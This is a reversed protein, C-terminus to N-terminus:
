CEVSNPFVKWCDTLYHYTNYNGEPHTVEKKLMIRFGLNGRKRCLDTAISCCSSLSLRGDLPEVNEIDEVLMHFSSNTKSKTFFQIYQGKM